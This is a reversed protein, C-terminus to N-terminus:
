ASVNISSWKFCPRGIANASISVHADEMRDLYCKTKANNGWSAHAEKLFTLNGSQVALVMGAGVVGGALATLFTKM